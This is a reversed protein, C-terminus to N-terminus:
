LAGPCHLAMGPTALCRLAADRGDWPEPMAKVAELVAAQVPTPEAYGKNILARDLAPHVAPFPM